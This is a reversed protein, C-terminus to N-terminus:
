RRIPAVEGKPNGNMAAAIEGSIRDAAQRVPDAALHAYRQTTAAQTHGLLKGIIPLSLRAGTCPRGKRTACSEDGGDYDLSAGIFACRPFGLAAFGRTRAEGHRSKECSSGLGGPQRLTTPTPHVM